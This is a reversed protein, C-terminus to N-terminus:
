SKVLRLTPRGAPVEDDEPAEPQPPAPPLPDFLVRQIAVWPFRCRYLTDFSLTIEVGDDDFSPDMHRHYEADLKIPLLEGEYRSLVVDPGGWDDLMSTEAFFLCDIGADFALQLIQAAQVDWHPSTAVEDLQEAEAELADAGLGLESPQLALAEGIEVLQDVTMERAGTLLARVDTKRWGLESALAQTNWGKADLRQRLFRLLPDSPRSM